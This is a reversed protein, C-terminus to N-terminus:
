RKFLVGFNFVTANAASISFVDKEGERRSRYMENKTRM